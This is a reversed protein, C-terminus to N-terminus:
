ASCPDYDFDVKGNLMESDLHPPEPRVRITVSTLRATSCKATWTRRNLGFWPDYGFDVKGNLM